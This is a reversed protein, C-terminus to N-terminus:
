EDTSTVTASGVAECACASSAGERRACGLIECLGRTSLGSGHLDLGLLEGVLIRRQLLFLLHLLVLVLSVPFVILALVLLIQTAELLLAEQRPVNDVPLHLDTICEVQLHMRGNAGARVAWFRRRQRPSMDDLFM